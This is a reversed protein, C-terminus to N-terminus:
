RRELLSALRPPDVRGPAARCGSVVQEPRRRLRLDPLREGPDPHPLSSARRASISDPCRVVRWVGGGWGPHKRVIWGIGAALLGALLGALAPILRKSTEFAIGFRTQLMDWLPIGAALSGTVILTKLRPVRLRVLREGIEGYAGYGLLAAFGIVFLAAAGQRVPSAREFSAPSRSLGNAMAFLILGLPAFFSLYMPFCYVCYSLGLSALAHELFLVAFLAALFVSARFRSPARRRDRRPWLFLTTIFATVAVFHFRMGQLFSLVRNDLSVAPAWFRAAEPQRWPALFPSLGTPIWYAWIKLIGPWFIAHGTLLTFVGALAAWRGARWGHQWFVYPILLVLVPALNLRTLIMVGALAAGAAIQWLPRDEGIALVLVWVLMCAIMAQTTALSYIRATAPNIAVAWVALAAWWESRVSPPPHNKDATARRILLWLGALMWVSLAIAFYRGARLGPGFWDQVFGHFIFSLPMHNTLPGYDQFPQYKGTVFWLGKLLYAGEDLVSEQTHAYFLAHLFYIIGGLLAAGRAIWPTNTM